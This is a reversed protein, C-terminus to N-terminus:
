LLRPTRQEIIKSRREGTDALVEQQIIERRTAAQGRGYDLEDTLQVLPVAALNGKVAASKIAEGLCTPDSLPAREGREQKRDSRVQKQLLQVPLHGGCRNACVRVVQRHHYSPASGPSAAAPLPTQPRTRQAHPLPPTFLHSSM